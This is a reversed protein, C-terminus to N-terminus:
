WDWSSRARKSSVVLHMRQAAQVEDQGTEPSVALVEAGCSDDVGVAEDKVRAIVGTIHTKLNEVILFADPAAAGGEVTSLGAGATNLDGLSNGLDLLSNQSARELTVYLTPLICM